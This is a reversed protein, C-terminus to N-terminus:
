AVTYIKRICVSESNVVGNKTLAEKAKVAASIMCTAFLSVSYRENSDSDFLLVSYRQARM